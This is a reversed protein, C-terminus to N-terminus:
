EHDDPLLPALTYALHRLHRPEVRRVLRKHRLLHHRDIRASHVEAVADEGSVARQQLATPLVLNAVADGGDHALEHAVIVHVHDDLILRLVVLVGERLHLDQQLRAWRRAHNVGVVLEGERALLHLAHHQWRM